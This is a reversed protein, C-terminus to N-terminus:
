LSILSYHRLKGNMLVKSGFITVRLPDGQVGSSGSYIQQQRAEIELQQQRKQEVSIKAEELRRQERLKTM